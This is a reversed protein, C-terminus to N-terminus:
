RRGGPPGLIEAWIFANRLASGTLPTGPAVPPAPRGRAPPTAAPRARIRQDFRAHDARTLEGSRMQAAVIRRQVLAEADDDQDVVVRGPREGGLELSVVEPEVELVERDEIEEAGELEVGGSRGLPGAEPGTRIGLLREMERRFDQMAEEQQSRAKPKAQPRSARAAIREQRRAQLQELRRPRRVKLEAQESSDSETPQVEGGAAKRIGRMMWQLLAYGAALLLILTDFEM